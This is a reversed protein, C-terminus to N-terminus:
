NCDYYKRRGSNWLAVIVMFSLVGTADIMWDYVSGTRSPIFSQLCEDLCAYAIAILGASVLWEKRWERSGARFARFLLFALFAYELFHSMKRIFVHVAELTARAAQPFLWQLLPLLFSSTHSSSLLENLPSIFIMWLVPPLWYYLLYVKRNM